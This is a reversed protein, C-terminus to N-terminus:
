PVTRLRLRRAIIRPPSPMQVVRRAADSAEREASDHPSSVHLAARQVTPAAGRFAALTADGDRRPTHLTAAAM